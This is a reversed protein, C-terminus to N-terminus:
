TGSHISRIINNNFTCFYKNTHFLVTNLLKLSIAHRTSIIFHDAGTVFGFFCKNRGILKM